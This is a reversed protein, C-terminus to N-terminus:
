MWGPLNRMARLHKDSKADLAASDRRSDDARASCCGSSTREGSLNFLKERPFRRVMNSEDRALPWARVSIPVHTDTRVHVYRRTLRARTSESGSEKAIEQRNGSARCSVRPARYLLERRNIAGVFDYRLKITPPPPSPRQRQVPKEIAIPVM